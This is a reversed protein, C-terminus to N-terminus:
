CQEQEPQETRWAVATELARGLENTDTKETTNSYTTTVIVALSVPQTKLMKTFKTYEFIALM